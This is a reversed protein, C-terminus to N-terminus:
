FFAPNPVMPESAICWEEAATLMSIRPDCTEGTLGLEEPKTPDWRWVKEPTSMLCGRGAMNSQGTLGFVLSTAAGALADNEVKLAGLQNM